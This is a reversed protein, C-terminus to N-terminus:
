YFIIAKSVCKNKQAARESFKETSFEQQATLSFKYDQHSEIQHRM